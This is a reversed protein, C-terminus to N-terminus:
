APRCAEASCIGGGAEVAPRTGPNSQREALGLRRREQWGSERSEARGRNCGVSGFSLRMCVPAPVSLEMCPWRRLSSEPFGVLQLHPSNCHDQLQLRDTAPSSHLAKTAAHVGTISQRCSPSSSPSNGPMHGPRANVARHQVHWLAGAREINRLRM